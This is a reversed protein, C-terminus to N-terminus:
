APSATFSPVDLDAPLVWEPDDGVDVSAFTLAAGCLGSCIYEGQLGFRLRCGTLLTLVVSAIEVMGYKRGVRRIAFQVVRNRAEQPEVPVIRIEGRGPADLDDVAIGSPTAEAVRVAKGEGAAIVIGAHNYRSAAKGRRLAQGFQILRDQFTSDHELFVDGPRANM